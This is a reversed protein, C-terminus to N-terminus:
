FWTSRHTLIGGRLDWEGFCGVSRKDRTLHGEYKAALEAAREKWKDALSGYDVGSSPVSSSKKDSAKRSAVECIISAALNAVAHLDDARITSTSNNVTHPATYEMLLGSAACFVSLTADDYVAWTNRDVPCRKGNSVRFLGSVGHREDWGSVETALDYSGTSSSPLSVSLRRPLDQSYRSLAEEVAADVEGDTIIPAQHLAKVRNTFASLIEGM